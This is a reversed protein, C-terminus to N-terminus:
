SLPIIQSWARRGEADTVQARLHKEWKLPEYEVHTIGEGVTVRQSYVGNSFLVVEVAPSCYVIGKGDKVTLHVEPGESAYFRGAEIAARVAAADISDSEVMVFSNTADAYNGEGYFHSDDTAFLPLICGSAALMDVILSSDGRRSMGRQSVTNFIETGDLEHLARIMEPTNLSWAPHALVALGGAKHIANIVEQPSADRGVAPEERAFLCLIHYCGEGGDSTGVHLEEGSYVTIGELCQESGFKWHDTLAIADYGAARYLAAVEQPTKRGDSLTTHHHLGVKVRKKGFLDTYM